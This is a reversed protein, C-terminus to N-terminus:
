RSGGNRFLRRTREAAVMAAVSLTYKASTASPFHFDDVPVMEQPIRVLDLVLADDKPMPHRELVEEGTEANAREYRIPNKDRADLMRFHLYVSRTASHLTVPVNLLGFANTGTWIPRPM